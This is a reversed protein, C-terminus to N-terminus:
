VEILTQPTAHLCPSPGDPGILYNDCVTAFLSPRMFAPHVVINMGEAIAMPEDDRILPREVMDYGQGHAYLRTEPPLGRGTMYDNHAAFVERCPTGPRLRALTHRQAECVAAFGERLEASAQGLVFTRAIETYFGGAGNNEVLLTFHDGARLTRGQAHRQVFVSAQGQPASSGLFIGQESGRLQGAYQALAAVEFDRLGPRIARAVEAVVEDQMAATRRIREQEEASKVAKLADVWETADVFRAGGLSEQLHACFAHSMGGTGVLGITRDGRRKLTDVVQRADYTRSYDVSSYSPNTLVQRIGRNAADEPSVEVMGDMPGQRVVTMRDNCPFVLSHPYANRAPTDTFWRVYGGLFGNNNQMVLVDIGREDMDARVAAWRRELEATSIPDCLKDNGAM